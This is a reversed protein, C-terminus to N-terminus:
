LISKEYDQILNYVKDTDLCYKKFFYKLKGMSKFTFKHRKLYKSEFKIDFLYNSNLNSILMNKYMSSTVYALPKIKIEFRSRISSIYAQGNVFLSKLFNDLYSNLIKTSYKALDKRGEDILDQKINRKIESYVDM